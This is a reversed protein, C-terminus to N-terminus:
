VSEVEYGLDEIVAVIENKTVTSPYEVEVTQNALDVKANVNKDALAGKISSVCHECSMGHVKLLEKM